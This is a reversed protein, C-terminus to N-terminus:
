GELSSAAARHTPWALECAPQLFSLCCPFFFAADRAIDESLCPICQCQRCASPSSPRGGPPPALLFAWQGCRWHCLGLSLAEPAQVQELAWGM